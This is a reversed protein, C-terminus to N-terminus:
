VDLAAGFVDVNDVIVSRIRATIIAVSVGDHSANEVVPCGGLLMM